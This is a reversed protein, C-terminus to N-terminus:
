TRWITLCSPTLGASESIVKTQELPLGPRRGDAHAPAM